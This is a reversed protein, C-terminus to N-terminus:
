ANVHGRGGWLTLLKRCGWWAAGSLGRDGVRHGAGSRGTERRDTGGSTLVRAYGSGNKSPSITAADGGVPMWRNLLDIWVRFIALASMRLLPRAARPPGPTAERRDAAGRGRQLRSLKCALALFPPKRRGLAGRESMPMGVAGWAGGSFPQFGGNGGALGLRERDARDRRGLARWAWFNRRAGGGDLQQHAGQVDAIALAAYGGGIINPGSRQFRCLVARDSSLPQNGRNRLEPEVTRHNQHICVCVRAGVWARVDRTPGHFPVTSGLLNLRKGTRHRAAGQFRLVAGGPGNDARSQGRWMSKRLMRAPAPALFFSCRLVLSRAVCDEREGRWYRLRLAAAGSRQAGSAARSASRASM